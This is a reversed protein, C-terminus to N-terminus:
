SRFDGHTSPHVEVFPPESGPLGEKEDGTGADDLAFVMGQIQGATEPLDCGSQADGEDELSGVVLGVPSGNAGKPTRAEGAAQLDQSSDSTLQTERDSGVHMLDPLHPRRRLNQVEQLNRSEETTLGIQDDRRGGRPPGTLM